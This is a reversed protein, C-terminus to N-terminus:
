QRQAIGNMCWEGNTVGLVVSVPVNQTQGQASLTLDVPALAMTDLSLHPPGAQKATQILQLAQPPMQETPKGDPDRCSVKELEAANKSSLAAVAAAATDDPKGPGALFGPWVFAALAGVVIVLLAGGAVGLLFGKKSSAQQQAVSAGEAQSGEAETHQVEAPPTQETTGETPTTQQTAAEAPTTQETTGEAPTTQQATAEAPPTQETTGEAPTTQEAAQNQSQAPAPSEGSGDEGASQKTKPADTM